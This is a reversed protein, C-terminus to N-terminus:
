SAPAMAAAAAPVRPPTEVPALINALAAVPDGIRRRRMVELLALAVIVFLMSVAAAILATKLM